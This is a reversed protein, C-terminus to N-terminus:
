RGDLREIREGDAGVERDELAVEPTPGEGVEVRGGGALLRPLHDVRDVVVVAAIRGVDVAADVGDGLLRGRGVLRGARLDGVEDARRARALDDEGAVGGLRDVQDGVGPAAAVDPAGVGDDQGLQLVVGVEDGPLHQGLLAVPVQLEHGDVLRAPETEVDVLHEQARPRLQDGEGVDRVADAGDDAHALHDIACVGGARQHQDVAGLCDRVQRDVHRLQAAVEVDERPVLRQPRGARAREPGAGLQELRHRGEQAAALHDALDM